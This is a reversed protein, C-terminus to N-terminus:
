IHNQIHIQDTKLYNKANNPGDQSEVHEEGEDKTHADAWYCVSKLAYWCVFIHM